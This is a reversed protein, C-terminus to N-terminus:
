MELGARTLWCWVPGPGLSGTEALGARRWRMHLTRVAAVNVGVLGALLDARAGYM